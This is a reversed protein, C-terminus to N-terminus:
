KVPLVQVWYCVNSPDQNIIESTCSVLGKKVLSSMIGSMERGSFPAMEHLWGCNPEDMGRKFADMAQQEKPTIKM